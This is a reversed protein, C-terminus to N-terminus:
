ERKFKTSEELILMNNIQHYSLNTKFEQEEMSDSASNLDVAPCTHQRQVFLLDRYILLTM